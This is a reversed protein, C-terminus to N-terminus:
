KALIGIQYKALITRAALSHPTHNGMSRTNFLETADKGLGELIAGKGPHQKLAMYPTVDYVKGEIALWGDQYTAHKAVEALTYTKESAKEGAEAEAKTKHITGAPHNPPSYITYLKAPEQGVNIVNHNVGAPVIAVGGATVTNEEGDMVFKLTGREVRFFQDVSPHVEMGIEEGVQLSMVVFQAHKGTYLVQRFNTNEAVIKEIDGTYGIM